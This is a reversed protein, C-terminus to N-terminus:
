RGARDELTWVALEPFPFAKQFATLVAETLENCWRLWAKPVPMSVPGSATAVCSIAAM